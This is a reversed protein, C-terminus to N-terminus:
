PQREELREKNRSVDSLVERKTQIESKHTKVIYEKFNEDSLNNM